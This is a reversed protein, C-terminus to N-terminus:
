VAAKSGTTEALDQLYLAFQVDIVPFVTIEKKKEAWEKWKAFAYM